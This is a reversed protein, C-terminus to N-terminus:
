APPAPVFQAAWAADDPALRPEPPHAYASRAYRQEDYIRDLAAKLDLRVDPDGARLPIPVVPMRDRLGWAWIGVRPREEARSVLAYYDCAPLGGVPLRPGGRLFDLEVFHTRSRLVQRRKGLYQARDDGSKNAPSLLEVVTVLEEGARDRIVIRDM